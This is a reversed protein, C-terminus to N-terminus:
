MLLMQLFIVVGLVCQNAYKGSDAIKNGVDKMLVDDLERINITVDSFDDISEEGDEYNIFIHTPNHGRCIWLNEFPNHM